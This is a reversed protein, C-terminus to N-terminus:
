LYAFSLYFYNVPMSNLIFRFHILWVDSKIGQADVCNELGRTLLTIKSGIIKLVILAIIGREPKSTTIAAIKPASSNPKEVQGRIARPHVM